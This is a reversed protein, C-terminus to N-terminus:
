QVHLPEGVIGESRGQSITAPLEESPALGSVHQGVNEIRHVGIGTGGPVPGLALDRLNGFVRSGFLLRRISGSLARDLAQKVPHM